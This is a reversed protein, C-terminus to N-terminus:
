NIINKFRAINGNQSSSQSDATMIIKNKLGLKILSNVLTQPLCGYNFDSFILFIFAFLRLNIKKFRAKM